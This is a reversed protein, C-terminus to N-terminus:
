YKEVKVHDQKFLNFNGFEIKGALTKERRMEIM